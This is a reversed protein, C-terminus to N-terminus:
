YKINTSKSLRCDSILLLPEKIHVMGCVPYCMSRGTNYTVGTTSFQSSCSIALLHEIRRDIAGHAFARVVSSCRAGGSLRIILGRVLRMFLCVCLSPRNQDVDLGVCVM